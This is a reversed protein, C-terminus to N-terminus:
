LYLGKKRIDKEVVAPVLARISKGERIRERIMTSSIDNGKWDILHSIKMGKIEKLFYDKRKFVIFETDQFLQNHKYWREIQKLIDLGIIFYFKYTYKKKLRRVTDATYNKGKTKLEIDCIKANRIKIISHKIMELREFASVLEKGFSHIKCPVVWVEDVLKKSLLYRIIKLHERHIPNFSGGFLGVKM